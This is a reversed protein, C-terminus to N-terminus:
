NSKNLLFRDLLENALRIYGTAGLSNLHRQIVDIGLNSAELIHPCHPIITEFVSDGLTQYIQKCVQRHSFIQNDYMTLLIGALRLRPEIARQLEKFAHLFRKLSKIALTECELPVIILDAALMANISLSNTSAPADVVIFDYKSSANQEIWQTLHYYDAAISIVTQETLLDFINSLLLDLNQHKSSQVIEKLSINPTCFIERIGFGTKKKVSLSHM